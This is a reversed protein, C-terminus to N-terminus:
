ITLSEYEADRDPVIQNNDILLINDIYSAQQELTVQEFIKDLPMKILFVKNAMNVIKTANLSHGGLEFFNDKAGVKSLGLVTEWIKALEKETATAPAVYTNKDIHEIPLSQLAKRDVKGNPTLPIKELAMLQGPVMYGPLKEILFLKLNGIDITKHATYYALLTDEVAVAVADSVEGSFSRITQEVEELEIRYGRLKVQHDNRGVFDINGDPQWMALDGTRYMKRGPAFPDDLFKEATLKPRNIYGQAVGDGSLYLQGAVGIPVPQLRRDLIYASTNTLPRGIPVSSTYKKDPSLRYVTSYTTDESPGYLNRVETDSKLLAHAIDVPFPEGALNIISVQEFDYGEELMSRVVSPVTNLLVKQDSKLVEGIELASNLVRIPKGVSLPYFMEYVSLDFCHSTVAYAVEFHEPNYEQQAWRILALVNAHTIKVGKPRGTTGSTYIVYALDSLGHEKEPVATAYEEKVSQWRDLVGQTIITKCQSDEEMFRARDVPYNIDIPVYAAGSKLIGLIVVLLHQDRKVKVGVLDGTAIGHEIKLYHAWRNADDDLQQYTRKGGEFVLATGDPVEVAQAEFLGTICPVEEPHTVPDNQGIGLCYEREQVPMYSLAELEQDSHDMVANFLCELHGFMSMILSADYIDTCYAIELTLADDEVFTFRMDFQATSQELEYHEISVGNLDTRSAITNLQSQNQLVVMVDFLPSRSPDRSVNLQQVLEGFPYSQHEYAALLLQKQQALLMKFSDHGDVITRIALTNLYLGIQDELDPHARGAVPTGIIIDNQQTYRYLLANIGAMLVTFLTTDNEKALQKLGAWCSPTFTQTIAAGKYTKLKPRKKFSPLHLIPLEGQFRSLWYAESARYVEGQSQEKLWVAYDGYQIGLEPLTDAVGEQLGNYSSIIEAILLEISWGDAIIHHVVLLLLFEQDESQLLTAKLLPATALDFPTEHMQQLYGDIAEKPKGRFDQQGIEFQFTEHSKVSQYIDGEETKSFYTRLIDHRAMLQGFAKKFMPIDLPGKLKVAGAMNYAASGGELQSLVWLRHQSPTLPYNSQGEIKPIPRYNEKKSIECLGEITPHSFFGKYSIHLGLEKAARNIVQGVMLSHGGRDFFDDTIGLEDTGLVEKWIKVLEEELVTRPAMRDKSKSLFEIEKIALAKRDIKGNPTLPIAPLRVIYTPVMYTPLHAHCHEKLAASRDMKEGTYYAILHETGKAKHVVVVAQTIRQSFSLLTNEIEGLEIRYGRLKIQGDKRGLFAINGDPLWQGQDGTDYMKQGTAFPNDVFKEATLAPANLYGTAVGDGAVYLKGMVGVPLPSLYEDLIYVQTNSIPKGIPVSGKYEKQSSLRYVTSYTTDESPGYLNRVETGKKPLKNALSIPFPEGALNIVSANDLSYGNDLLHQISSPVTNLLVKRDAQLAQGIELANDLIKLPKGISLPYFMEFVSLDFCHSTPAYVIEFSEPDFEEQAWQILATVNKHLVKVGKPKGTTGSTYILYALDDPRHVVKPNDPSIQPILHKFRELENDDIVLKCASDKEIYDIREAPYNTDMPVYAAGSKLIGTIIGPLWENRMLRIGILDGAQVHHVSKLYHAIRNAYQNFVKYTLVENNYMVAVQDPDSEAQATIMGTLGETKPFVKATGNFRKLLGEKEQATIIPVKSLPMDVYIKLDILWAKFTGLFHAAVDADLFSRATSLSLEYTAARDAIQLAFPLKTKESSFNYFMGFSAYRYFSQNVELGKLTFKHVEQVEQKIDLLSDKLTKGKLPDINYLQPIAVGAEVKSSFIFASPDFYRQILGNFVTLFITYEAMVQGSSLQGFYPCLVKDLIVTQTDYEGYSVENIVPNESIKSIWYNSSIKQHISKM